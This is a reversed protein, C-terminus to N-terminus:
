QTVTFTGPLNAIMRAKWAPIDRTTWNVGAFLRAWDAHLVLNFNFAPEHHFSGNDTVYYDGLDSRTFNLTDPLAASSTDAAVVAQLFVYDHNQYLAETQPRLPHNAPTLAPIIYSAKDSIGLRFQVGDFDGTERFSAVPNDLPVRKILVFDDTFTQELTDSYGPNYIKFETSDGLPFAQANKYLQFESLYFVISLIRFYHGQGDPYLADKQFDLTDFVQDTTIVLQPYRCCCDKDAGALFNVAAPDLCGEKPDFCSTFYGAMVSLVVLQVASLYFPISNKSGSM